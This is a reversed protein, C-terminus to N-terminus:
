VSWTTGPKGSVAPRVGASAYRVRLTCTADVPMEFDYEVVWPTEDGAVLMLEPHRDRYDGYLGPNEAVRTNGRDFEWANISLSGAPNAAAPATGLGWVTAALAVSM